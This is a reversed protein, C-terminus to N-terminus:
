QLSIRASAHKRDVWRLRAERKPLHGMIRVFSGKGVTDTSASVQEDIGREKRM